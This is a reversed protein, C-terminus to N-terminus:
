RLIRGSYRDIVMQAQGNRVLYLGTQLNHVPSMTKDNNMVIYYGSM